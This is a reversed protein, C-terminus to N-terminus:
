GRGAVSAALGDLVHAQQEAAAAMGALVRAFPGSRAEIAAAAHAEAVTRESRALERV